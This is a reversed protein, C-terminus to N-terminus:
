WVIRFRRDTRAWMEQTYCVMEGWLVKQEWSDNTHNKRVLYGDAGAVLGRWDRGLTRAIQAAEDIQQRDLGFM